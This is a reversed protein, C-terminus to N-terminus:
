SSAACGIVAQNMVPPLPGGQQFEIDQQVFVDFEVNESIFDYLCQCQDQTAGAQGSSPNTCLDIFVTEAEAGWDDGPLTTLTQGGGDETTSPGEDDTVTTEGGTVTTGGGLDSSDEDTLARFAFFGALLVVVAAVAAGLLRRRGPSPAPGPPVLPEVVAPPVSAAPATVVPTTDVPATAAPEAPTTASSPPASPSRM